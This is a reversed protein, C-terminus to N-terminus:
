ITVPVQFQGILTNEIYPVRIQRISKPKEKFTKINHKKFFRKKEGLEELTNLHLEILDILSEKAEEITDGFSTTGLELCEGIWKNNKDRYFRLNVIVLLQSM